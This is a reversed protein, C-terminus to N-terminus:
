GRSAPRGSPYTYLEVLRHRAAELREEAVLLLRRYLERGLDADEAMIARVGAAYFEVARVEDVVLGGLRWRYPPLLASTGVM